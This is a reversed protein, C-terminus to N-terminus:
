SESMRRIGKVLLRRTVIFSSIFRRAQAGCHLAPLSFNLVSPLLGASMILHRVPCTMIKRCENVAAPPPHDAQRPAAPRLQRPHAVVELPMLLMLERGHLRDREPIHGGAARRGAHLFWAAAGALQSDAPPRDAAGAQM